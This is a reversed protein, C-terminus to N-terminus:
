MGEYTMPQMEYCKKKTKLPLVNFLFIQKHSLLPNKSSKPIGSEQAKVINAAIHKIKKWTNKGTACLM